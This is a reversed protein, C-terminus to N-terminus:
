DTAYTLEKNKWEDFSLNSLKLYLADPCLEIDKNWAIADTEKDIYVKYFLDNNEWANFIGQHSLHSLDIEGETGDSYKISIIYKKIAKIEIPKSIM